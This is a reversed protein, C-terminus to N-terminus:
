IDPLTLVVKVREVRKGDADFYGVDTLSHVKVPASTGSFELNDDPVSEVFGHDEGYDDYQWDAYPEAEIRCTIGDALERIKMIRVFSLWSPIHASSIKRVTEVPAWKLALHIPVEFSIKGTRWSGLFAGNRRYLREMLRGAQDKNNVLPLWRSLITRDRLPEGFMRAQSEQSVKSRKTLTIREDRSGRDVFSVNIENGPEQSPKWIITSRGDRRIVTPFAGRDTILEEDDLGLKQAATLKKPIVFRIKGGDNIYTGDCTDLIAKLATKHSGQIRLYGNAKFRRPRLGAEPLIKFRDGGKPLNGTDAHPFNLAVSIIIVPFGQVASEVNHDGLVSPEYQELEQLRKISTIRKRIHLKSGPNGVEITIEGFQSFDSLDWNAELEGRDVAVAIWNRKTLDTVHDESDGPGFLVFGTLLSVRSEVVGIEEQCYASENRAAVLDIENDSKGAGYRTNRLYHYAFQIPNPRSTWYRESNDDAQADEGPLMRTMVGQISIDLESTKRDAGAKPESRTRVLALGSMAVGNGEETNFLDPNGSYTDLVHDLKVSISQRSGVAQMQQELTLEGSTVAAGDNAEAGATRGSSQVGWCILQDKKANADPSGFGDATGDDVSGGDIALVELSYIRGESVVHLAHQFAEQNSLGLFDATKTHCAGVAIPITSGSLGENGQSTTEYPRWTMLGVRRRGHFTQKAPVIHGTFYRRADNNLVTLVQSGSPGFMGRDQCAQVSYSCDGFSPGVVYGDENEPILSSTAGAVTWGSVTLVGEAVSSVEGVLSKTEVLVWDGPVIAISGDDPNLFKAGSDSLTTSTGGTAQGSARNVPIGKGRVIDYPCHGDVGDAFVNNCNTEYRRQAQAGLGIFGFGLELTATDEQLIPERSIHGQWYREIINNPPSLTPFLRTCSVRGGQFTVGENVLKTVRLDVNSLTLSTKDDDDGVPFPLEGQSVVLAEYIAGDPAAFAQSNDSRFANSYRCARILGEAGLDIDWLDIVHIGRNDSLYESVEASLTRSM